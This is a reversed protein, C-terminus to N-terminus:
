HRRAGKGACNPWIAWAREDESLLLSETIEIVLLSAAVGSTNATPAYPTPSDAPATSASLTSASSASRIAAGTTPSRSLKRVDALAHRLVWDGLYLILANKEALHVLQEPPMAGAVRDLRILAEFGVARGTALDVIPQYQM